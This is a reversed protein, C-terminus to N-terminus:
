SFTRGSTNKIDVLYLMFSPWFVFIIVSKYLVTLLLGLILGYKSIYARVPATEEVMGLEPYSLAYATVLAAVLLFLFTLGYILM